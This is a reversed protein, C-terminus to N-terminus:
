RTAAVTRAGTRARLVRDFFAVADAAVRAHVAARDVVATRDVCVQAVLLRGAESCVPMFVFHGAEPVRELRARPIARAYHAANLAFPVLEDRELGVVTVPTTVARLSPVTVGPGFVPVLALVARIRRDRHSRRADALDPFVGLDVDGFLACDPGAKPGRCYALLAEPDLRAGAISLVTFGGASHGAAGVRRVDIRPGLAPDAALSDLVVSLDAPRRWAAFRGAASSDGFRDGPHDVAAVLYGATALAEALWALNAGDGGSGHSLLVLPMHTPTARMPAEWAGRGPFIGDWWITEESTGPAAPYWITTALRRGRAVDDLERTTVGVPERAPDQQEARVPGPDPSPAFRALGGCGAACLALLIAAAVRVAPASRDDRPRGWL